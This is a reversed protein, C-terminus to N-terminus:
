QETNSDVRLRREYLELYFPLCYEYAAQLHPQANIQDQHHEPRQYFGTSNAADTHWREWLDWEPRSGARWTLAEPLFPVNIARCYGQIVLSPSRCLDDADIVIPTTTHLGSALAFMQHQMGYGAEEYTFDPM